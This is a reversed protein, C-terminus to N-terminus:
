NIIRVNMVDGNSPSVGSAPLAMAASSSVSSTNYNNIITTTGGRTQEKELQLNALMQGSMLGETAKSFIMLKNMDVKDMFTDLADATKGINSKGLVNMAEALGRIGSAALNLGPGIAAFKQFKEVPDSAGFFKSIGESIGGILGGAGFAGLGVGLATIGLGVKALNTSDIAGFKEVSKAIGELTEKSPMAAGGIMAGVSFLVLGGALAALGLAVAAMNGAELTSLREIGGVISDLVGEVTKGIATILDSISGVVKTVSDGISNIIGEISTGVKSINDGIANLITEITLGIQELVPKIIGAVAVIVKEISQIAVIIGQVVTQITANLVPDTIIDKITKFLSTIIPSLAGVVTALGEFFLTVLPGMRKIMEGFGVLVNYLIDGIVSGLAKIIGTVFELAKGEGAILEFVKFAAALGAAFIPLSLAMTTVGLLVKVRAFSALGSSLGKLFGGIGKGASKMSRGMAGIPNMVAKGMRSFFGGAKAEAAKGDSVTDSDDGGRAAERAAEASLTNTKIQLNLMQTLVKVSKDKSQRKNVEALEDVVDTLTKGTDGAAM